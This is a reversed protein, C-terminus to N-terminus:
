RRASSALFQIKQAMEAPFPDQDTLHLELLDLSDFGWFLETGVRFTPVGFVGRAIGQDTAERFANKLDQNSLQKLLAGGDLGVDDACHVITKPDELGHTARGGWCESWFRDCLARKHTRPCAFVARLAKLPNFPHTHPLGFPIKNLVARRVAERFAWTRKSPIEAPGKQGHSNLLAALLIPHLDVSAGTQEALAYVKHSALYAYPSLFDFYFEIRM